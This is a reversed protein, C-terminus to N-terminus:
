TRGRSSARHAVARPSTGGVASMAFSRSDADGPAPAGAVPSTWPELVANWRDIAVDVTYRRSTALTAAHLRQWAAPEDLIASIAAGFAEPTAERVLVGNVGDAVLDALDGVDPVVPVAGAMAAEMLSLALGESYSTLAFVRARALWRPVDTRHGLFAVHDCLGLDRSRRELEDRLPGDGIVVATLRGRRDLVVRLVRLFLDIRKIPALRAVLIVDVDRTRTQDIRVPTIGGPVVHCSARVGHERFYAVARSGMTVILDFRGVARILQRELRQDPGPLHNFLRNEAWIGGDAVEMPGGVCFYMARAGVLRALLLACLGNFLLHFGGVVDPPTRLAEAFFTVLRAPVAGLAAVLRPSPQIVTVGPIPPLPRVSVVRLRRCAPSMALPRVHALAWSDAHFTLTVLIDLGGVPASRRPRWSALSVLALWTRLGGRLAAAVMLRSVSRPRM